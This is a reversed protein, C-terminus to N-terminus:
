LSLDNNQDLRKNKRKKKKHPISPASEGRAIPFSLPLISQGSKTIGMSIKQSLAKSESRAITKIPTNQNAEIARKRAEAMLSLRAEITGNVKTNAYRFSDTLGREFTFSRDFVVEGAEKFAVRDFQGLKKSHQINKGRSKNMPSLKVSNTIDKRSVIIQLHLHEGPKQEGRKKLGQKVELDKHSYYRHRELKGFWLLDRNSDIGERKFNKAYENMMLVGYTKLQAEMDQEGYKEKLWMIEKQSPSLNILFFKADKKTLKSINHDIKLQVESAKIHQSESNFWLEPSRQKNLRNEKDLYHVLVNCSGKNNSVESDTIKVHM